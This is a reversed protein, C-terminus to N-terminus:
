SLAELAQWTTWLEVHLLPWLVNVLLALRSPRELRLSRFWELDRGYGDTITVM